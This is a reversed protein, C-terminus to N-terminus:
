ELTMLTLSSQRKENERESGRERENRAVYSESREEPGEECVFLFYHAPTSTSFFTRDFYGLINVNQAPIFLHQSWLVVSLYFIKGLVGTLRIDDHVSVLSSCRSCLLKSTIIKPISL